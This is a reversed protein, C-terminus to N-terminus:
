DSARRRRRVTHALDLRVQSALGLEGYLALDNMTGAERQRRALDASAEAAERVLRRVAVVQEAAQAAYFACRVENALSLVEDGVHLKTAELQARAVRKRLPMMLLDLFDQEVTFFLNPSIHEMEWATVGGSLVPNKLLGAEVLDAQALSLEEYSARLSPNNLLAIQVSADVTLERALLSDIAEEIKRDDTSGRNWTPKHGLRDHVDAAVDRFAPEPSTSACGWLMAIPLIAVAMWRQYLATMKRPM